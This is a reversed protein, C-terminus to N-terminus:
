NPVRPSRTGGEGERTNGMVLWGDVTVSLKRCSTADHLGVEHLSILIGYLWLLLWM